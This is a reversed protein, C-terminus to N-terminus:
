SAVKRSPPLWEEWGDRVRLRARRLASKEQGEQEERLELTSSGRVATAVVDLSATLQAIRNFKALVTLYVFGEEDMRERLYLDRTLNGPSFYFEIQKRVLEALGEESIGEAPIGPSLPAIAGSPPIGTMEVPVPLVTPSVGFAPSGALGAAADMVMPSQGGVGAAPVPSGWEGPRRRPSRLPSRNAAEGVYYYGYGYQGFGLTYGSALLTSPDAATYDVIQQEEADDVWEIGASAESPDGDPLELPPAVEAIPDADASGSGGSSGGTPADDADSDSEITCAITPADAEPEVERAALAPPIVGSDSVSVTSRERAGTKGEDRDGSGEMPPPHRLSRRPAEDAAPPAAPKSTEPESKAAVASSRRPQGSWAGSASAAPPQEIARLPKVTKSAPASRTETAPRRGNPAVTNLLAQLPDADKSPPVSPKSSTERPTGARSEDLQTKLTRSPAHKEGSSGSPARQERAPTKPAARAANVPTASPRRPREPTAEPSKTSKASSTELLRESSVLAGGPPAQRPGSPPSTSLAAGNSRADGSVSSGSGGSASRLSSAAGTGGTGGSGDNRPSRQKQQKRARSGRHKAALKTAEVAAASAAAAAAASVAVPVPAPTTQTAGTASGSATRPSTKKARRTSTSNRRDAVGGSAVSAGRSRRTRAKDAGFTDVLRGDKSSTKSVESLSRPREVVKTASANSQTRTGRRAPKGVKPEASARAAAAQARLRRGGALRAKRAANRRWWVGLTVSLLLVVVGGWFMNGELLGTKAAKPALVTTPLVAKPATRSAGTNEGPSGAVSASPEVTELADDDTDDTPEAPRAEFLLRSAEDRAVGRAAAADAFGGGQLGVDGRAGFGASSHAGALEPSVEELAPLPATEGRKASAPTLARILELQSKALQPNRGRKIVMDLRKAETQLATVGNMRANRMQNLLYLAMWALDDHGQGQLSEHLQKVKSTLLKRARSTSMAYEEAFRRLADLEDGQDDVSDANLAQRMLAHTRVVAAESTRGIDELYEWHSKVCTKTYQVRFAYAIWTWLLFGVHSMTVCAQQRAPLPSLRVTAVSGYVHELYRCASQFSAVARESDGLAVYSEALLQSVHAITKIDEMAGQYPPFVRPSPARAADTLPRSRSARCADPLRVAVRAVGVPRPRLRVPRATLETQDAPLAGLMRELLQSAPEFDGQAFMQAARRYQANGDLVLSAQASHWLCIALAAAGWAAVAVATAGRASNRYRARWNGGRPALKRRRQSMGPRHCRVRGLRKQSPSRPAAHGNAGRVLGM